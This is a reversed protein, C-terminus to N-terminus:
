HRFLASADIRWADALQKLLLFEAESLHRDALAASTAAAFVKYQLAPEDVDQMLTNLLSPSTCWRLGDAGTTSALLDECLTQLAVSMGGQPLGLMSEADARRLAGVEAPSVNGDAIMMLAVLRAAAEPSNRPYNHM